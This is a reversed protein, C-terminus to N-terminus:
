FTCVTCWVPVTFRPVRGASRKGKERERERERERESVGVVCGYYAAAMLATRRGGSLVDVDVGCENLL